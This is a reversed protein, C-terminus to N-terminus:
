LTQATRGRGRRADGYVTSVVPWGVVVPPLAHMLTVPLRRM